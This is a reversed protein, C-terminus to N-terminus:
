KRTYKHFSNCSITKKASWTSYVGNKGYARIEVSGSRICDQVFDDSGEYVFLSTNSTKYMKSEGNTKTVRIEYYDANNVKDWRVQLRTKDYFSQGHRYIAQTIKPTETTEIEIPNRNFYDEVMEDIMDKVSEPVTIHIEPIDPVPNKWQPTVAHAPLEAGIILAGMLAITVLKKKM